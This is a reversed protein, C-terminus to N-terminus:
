RVIHLVIVQFLMSAYSVNNSKNYNKYYLPVQVVIPLEPILLREMIHSNISKQVVVRKERIRYNGFEVCFTLGSSRYSVSM